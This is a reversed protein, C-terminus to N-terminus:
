IPAKVFAKDSFIAVDQKGRRNESITGKEGTFEAFNEESEKEVLNKMEVSCFMTRPRKNRRSAWFASIPATCLQCNNSSITLPQAELRCAQYTQSFQPLRNTLREM